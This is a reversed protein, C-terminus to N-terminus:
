HGSTPADGSQIPVSQQRSGLLLGIPVNILVFFGNTAAAGDIRHEWEVLLIMTGVGASFTTAGNTWHEIGATALFMAGIGGAIQVGGGFGYRTDLAATAGAEWHAFTMTDRVFGMVGGRARLRGSHGGGLAANVELHWSTQETERAVSSDDARAAGCALLQFLITSFLWGTHKTMTELSLRM